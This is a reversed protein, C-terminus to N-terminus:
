RAEPRTRSYPLRGNTPYVTRAPNGNWSVKASSLDPAIEKVWVPHWVRQRITTNGMKQMSSSWLMDGVKVKKMSVPM